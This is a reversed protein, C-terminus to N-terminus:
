LTKKEGGTAFFRRSASAVQNAARAAFHKM